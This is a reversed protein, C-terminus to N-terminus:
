WIQMFLPELEAIILMDINLFTDRYEQLIKSKTIHGLNGKMTVITRSDGDRNENVDNQRTNRESGTSNSNANSSDNNTIKRADTLYEENDVGNLAGQPTDSYLDYSISNSNTNETNTNQSSRNSNENATTKGNDRYDTKSDRIYDTMSMPDVILGESTYLKNYYPMIENLKNRLHLKWLGVSEFGIERMYFHSVIKRELIARYNEDFIPYVFDFLYGCASEIIEDVNGFGLEDIDKGLFTACIERLEFTYSAM